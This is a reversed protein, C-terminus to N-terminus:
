LEMIIRESSSFTHIEGVPDMWTGHEVPGSWKITTASDSRCWGDPCGPEKLGGPLELRQFQKETPAPQSWHPPVTFEAEAQHQM